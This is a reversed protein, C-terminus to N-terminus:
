QTSVRNAGLKLDAVHTSQLEILLTQVTQFETSTQINASRELEAPLSGFLHAQLQQALWTARAEAFSAHLQRFKAELYGMSTSAGETIVKDGVATVVTGGVADGALQLMGQMATDAVAPFFAHGVPGAGTMFLAVSVAPRTAAAVTDLRRFLKYSQPSEQQFRELQSAVLTELEGELDVAAHSQRLHELLQARSAGELIQGLRQSLLPHGLDRLWTLRELTRDLVDLVAIWESERYQEFPTRQEGQQQDKLLKFPYAVARGVSNYFGHVQASWGTRQQSWWHRIAKIMLKNSLTPWRSLEVLKESSMLQQAERFDAGRRTIESLWSPLGADASCLQQLAGRMSQLKIEDFHLRSFDDLLVHPSESPPPVSEDRPWDRLQFPLRLEEAARRDNPAVYVLHPRIGTETQFTNLWLPWYDEDEPLLVQNFLVIVLKGEQAAHRFFRKVAADNYKQQTLVAVLVDASRRIREAREWNVEAVSDVDPTDLVLLNPPLDPSERWFLLHREDTSLAQETDHWPTLEFDPFIEDLHDRQAFNQPILLTPHKTGSALPSTASIRGGALHNFVVSKGINTGGVVAVVLFADKGLQPILKQELLEFWERAHLPALQFGTTKTHLLRVAERLRLVLDFCDRLDAAM